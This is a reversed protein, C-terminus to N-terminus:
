PVDPAERAVDAASPAAAATSNVLRLFYTELDEEVVAIRTPPEGAGALAAAVLEPHAVAQIGELVLVRTGPSRRSATRLASIAGAVLVLAAGIRRVTPPDLPYVGATGRIGDTGFLRNNNAVPLEYRFPPRISVPSM